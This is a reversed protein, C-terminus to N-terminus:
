NRDIITRKAYAVPGQHWHRIGELVAPLRDVIAKKGPLDKIVLMMPTISHYFRGSESAPKDHSGCSISKWKRLIAVFAGWINHILRSAM